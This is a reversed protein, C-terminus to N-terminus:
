LRPSQAILVLSEEGNCGFHKEYNLSIFSQSGARIFKWGWFLFYNTPFVFVKRDRFSKRYSAEHRLAITVFKRKMVRRGLNLDACIIM